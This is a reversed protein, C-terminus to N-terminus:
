SPEGQMLKDICVPEAVVGDVRKANVREILAFPFTEEQGFLIGVRKMAGREEEAARFPKTAVLYWAPSRALRAGPAAKKVARIARCVIAASDCAEMKRPLNLGTGTASMASTDLAM